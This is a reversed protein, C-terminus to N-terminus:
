RAAHVNEEIYPGLAKAKIVEFVGERKMEKLAASLPQVLAKHKSNLYLYMERVALPPELTSIEKIGLSKIMAYGEFRSYVAIDTRNNDLLLFLQKQDNARVMSNTGIINEELIKWGRVIAVDYPKLFGWSTTKEKVKRSFAVFEFDDIKEPVRILNPYLRELGSVRMFDGDTIGTNANVLSREAPLSAIEINYDIRKFAETLILDYYGTKNENSLPLGAFTGLVLTSSAFCPSLFFAISFLQIVIVSSIHIIISGWGHKSIIISFVYM